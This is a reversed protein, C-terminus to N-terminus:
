LPVAIHWLVGAPTVLHIERKGWPYDEPAKARAGPHNGPLKMGEIKRWWADLDEVDLNMMFNDQMERNALNQLFFRFAGVVFVALEESKWALTFGLDLYFRIEGAYDRGAGVL